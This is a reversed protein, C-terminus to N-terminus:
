WAQNSGGNRRRDEPAAVPRRQTRGLAPPHEGPRGDVPRQRRRSADTDGRSGPRPGGTGCVERGMPVQIRMSRGDPRVVAARGAISLTEEDRWRRCPNLPGAKWSCRRPTFICRLANQLDAGQRMLGASLNEIQRNFLNHALASTMTGTLNLLTTADADAMSRGSLRPGFAALVAYDQHVSQKVVVTADAPLVGSVGEPVSAAIEAQPCPLGLCHAAIGALGHECAECEPRSLGRQVVHGAQTRANIMIALGRVFGFIGMATLLNTELIKRPQTFESLECATEYLVNLHFVRRDLENQAQSANEFAERLAPESPTM